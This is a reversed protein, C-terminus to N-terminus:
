SYECPTRHGMSCRSRSARLTMKTATRNGTILSEDVSGDSSVSVDWVKSEPNFDGTTGFDIFNGAGSIHILKGKAPGPKEKFGAVIATVVDPTFSSGANFAVDHEKSLSKIKEFDTFDGTEVSDVRLSSRVSEASKSPRVYATVSWSPHAAKLAKITPVGVFGTAGFVIISPM